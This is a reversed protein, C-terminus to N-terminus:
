GRRSGDGSKIRFAIGLRSSLAARRQPRRQRLQREGAIGLLLSRNISSPFGLLFSAVSFGTNTNITCGSAIGACNSTLQSAFNFTGVANDINIKNKRRRV